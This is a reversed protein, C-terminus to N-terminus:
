LLITYPTITLICMCLITYIVVTFYYDSTCLFYSLSKGIEALTGIAGTATVMGTMDGTVIEVGTTDGTVIEVTETMDATEEVIM